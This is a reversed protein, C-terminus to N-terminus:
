KKDYIDSYVWELMWESIKCSKQETHVSTYIKCSKQETHVQRKYVDLHTYSVPIFVPIFKAAKKSVAIVKSRILLFRQYKWMNIGWGRVIDAHWTVGWSSIHKALDRHLNELFISYRKIPTHLNLFLCPFQMKLGHSHWFLPSICIGVEPVLQAGDSDCNNWYLVQDLSCLSVWLVAFCETEALLSM